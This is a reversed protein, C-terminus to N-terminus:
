GGTKTKFKFHFIRNLKHLRTDDEFADSGGVKRGYYIHFTSSTIALGDWVDLLSDIHRAIALAEAYTEAVTAIQVMHEELVNDGSGDTSMSLVLYPTTEGPEPVQYFVKKNGANGNLMTQLTANAELYTKLDDIM